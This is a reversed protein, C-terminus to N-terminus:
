RVLGGHTGEFGWLVKYNARVVDDGEATEERSAQVVGARCASDRTWLGARSPPCGVVRFSLLGDARSGPREHPRAFTINWKRQESISCRTWVATFALWRRYRAFPLYLAM